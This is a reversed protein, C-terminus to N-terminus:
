DEKILHLLRTQEREMRLSEEPSREHDYGLLHLIGHILLRHVTEELPEDLLASEAAATDVSIVVDGLMASEVDPEPGGSMPFAIVNTPGKRRLYQENLEAIFPDDTFLISIEKDHCGLDNLVKKM